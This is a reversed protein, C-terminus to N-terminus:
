PNAGGGEIDVARSRGSLNGFNNFSEEDYMRDSNMDM